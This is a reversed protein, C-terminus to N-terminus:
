HEWNYLFIDLCSSISTGYRAGSIDIAYEEGNSLKIWLTQHSYEDQTSSSKDVPRISMRRLDNKTVLVLERMENVEGELRVNTMM